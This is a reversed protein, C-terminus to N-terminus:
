GHIKSSLCLVFEVKVTMVRHPPVNPFPTKISSSTLNDVAAEEGCDTEKSCVM